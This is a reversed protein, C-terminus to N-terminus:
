GSMEGTMFFDEKTRRGFYVIKIYGITDVITGADAIMEDREFGQIALLIILFLSKITM